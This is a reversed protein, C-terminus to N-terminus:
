STRPRQAPLKDQSVSAVPLSFTFCAGRGVEGEASIQGGHREIIRRAISLGLGSGAFRESGSLRHFFGFLKEADKMDFGIGNDRVSYSDQSAGRSCTIEIVCPRDSRTFKLANSLINTFVQRLLAPDAEATPLAGIHVTAAQYAPILRLEALASQVLAFVDVAQTALSGRGLRSFRLLDDILRFLRQGGRQIDNLYEKQTPNLPGANGELLLESFGVMVHLPQRVDHVVTTTFADLEFNASRLESNTRELDRNLADLEATREAVRQLLAANELRLRRVTLARSVIPLITTLNFPKLIYDLAGSKMAAVATDITGHGTMVVGVLNEDITQAARLLAIGDLDPMMLDTILVDFRHERLQSLAEAASHVETPAYGETKLTRALARAQAAEDDVILLQGAGPHTM